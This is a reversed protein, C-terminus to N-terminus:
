AESTVVRFDAQEKPIGWNRRGNVVSVDTSVFIRSISYYSRGGMLCRGPILLLEQYPGCNSQSYDVMMLAGLGGVFTPRMFTPVAAEQALLAQSFRYFFIHGSGRLNWPAPYTASM